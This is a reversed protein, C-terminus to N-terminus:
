ASQLGQIQEEAATSYNKVTISQAQRGWCMCVCVCSCVRVCEHVCGHECVYMCAYECVCVYVCMCVRYSVCTHADLGLEVEVGCQM